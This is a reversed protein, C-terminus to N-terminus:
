EFNMKTQEWWVKRLEHIFPVNLTQHIFMNDSHYKIIEYDILAWDINNRDYTFRVAIQKQIYEDALVDKFKSGPVFKEFSEKLLSVQEEINKEFLSISSTILDSELPLQKSSAYCYNQSQKSLYAIIRHFQTRKLAKGTKLTYALKKYNYAKRYDELNSEM